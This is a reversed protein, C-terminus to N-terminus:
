SSKQQVTRGTPVGFVMLLVVFVAGGVIAIDAVNGIFLNAYAIFDIVHGEGFAPPRFLRDGLHTAAGGLVLGLAVAWLASRLGWAFWVIVIVAAAAIITFVWTSQTGVSFAAGSNTTLQLGLLDGILPRRVGPTLSALAWWKTLQDVVLVLVAVGFSLWFVARPARAGPAASM